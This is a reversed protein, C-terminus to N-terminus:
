TPDATFMAARTQATAPGPSSSAVAVTRSNVRDTTSARNAEAPRRARLPMASGISSKRTVGARVVCPAPRTAPSWGAPSRTAPRVAPRAGSAAPPM